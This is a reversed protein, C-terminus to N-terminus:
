WALPLGLAIDAAYTVPIVGLRGTVPTLLGIAPILLGFGLAAGFSALLWRPARAGGPPTSAGAATSRAFRSVVVAGGVVGAAGVHRSSRQVAVNAIAWSASASLGLVVGLLMARSFLACSSIHPAAECAGDPRVVVGLAPLSQRGSRAFPARSARLTEFFINCG